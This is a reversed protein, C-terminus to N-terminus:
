RNTASGSFDFHFTVNKCTDQVTHLDRFTVQPNKAPPLSVTGNKPITIPLGTVQKSVFIHTPAHCNSDTVIQTGMLHSTKARIAVDVKNVVIDQNNSNTLSLNLTATDGPVLTRIANTQTIVFPKKSPPTPPTPPRRSAALALGGVVTLLSVVSITIRTATTPLFRRM